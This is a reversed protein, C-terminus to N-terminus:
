PSYVLSMESSRKIVDIRLIVNWLTHKLLTQLSKEKSYTYAEIWVPRTRMPSDAEPLFANNGEDDRLMRKIANAKM